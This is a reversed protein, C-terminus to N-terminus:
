AETFGVCLGHLAPADLWAIPGGALPGIARTTEALSSVGLVIARIGPQSGPLLTIRGTALGFSAFPLGADDVGTVADTGLLRAYAEAAAPLEPVAVHVAALTRAGCRHSDVIMPPWNAAIEPPHTRRVLIPSPVCGMDLEVDDWRGDVGVYGGFRGPIGASALHGRLRGPDDFRLFLLSFTWNDVPQRASVEVYARDLYIRGHHDAAAPSVTVRLGLRADLLVSADRLCPVSLSVHDLHLSAAM